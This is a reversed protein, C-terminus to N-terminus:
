KEGDVIGHSKPTNPIIKARTFLNAVEKTLQHPPLTAVKEDYVLLALDNTTTFNTSLIRVNEYLRRRIRNRVVASKSVKRSVVVALRYTTRRENPCFRLSIAQGGRVTTGRKYLYQLSAHGHFRNTRSIM